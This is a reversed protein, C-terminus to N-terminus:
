WFPPISSKLRYNELDEWKKWWCVVGRLYLKQHFTELM